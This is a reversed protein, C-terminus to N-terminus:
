GNANHISTVLMTNRSRRKVSIHNALILCTTDGCSTLHTEAPIDSAHVRDGDLIAVM